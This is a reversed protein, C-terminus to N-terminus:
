KMGVQVMIAKLMMTEGIWLRNSRGLMATPSNTVSWRCRAAVPVTRAAHSSARPRSTTTANRAIKVTSAKVGFIRLSPPHLSASEIASPMPQRILKTLM